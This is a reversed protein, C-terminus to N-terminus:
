GCSLKKGNKELGPFHSTILLLLLLLLQTKLHTVIMPPNLVTSLYGYGTLLSTM